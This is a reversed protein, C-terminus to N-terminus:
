LRSEIEKSLIKGLISNPVLRSCAIALRYKWNFIRIPAQNQIQKWIENAAFEASMAGPKPESSKQNSAREQFRTTVVGPCAALVRIGYKQMEYDMSQSFQNVFGKTASYVSFLPFIPIFGAASSVNLIIGQKKQSIWQRAIQISLEVVANCNVEISNLQEEIPISTTEGYKGFGANNIVLDPNSAQMKQILIMRQDPQSLDAQIIEVSVYARLENAVSELRSLDRGSIILSINKQALLRCVAEGIGSNAGTVLALNFKRENM